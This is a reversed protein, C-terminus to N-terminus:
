RPGPPPQAPGPDPPAPSTAGPTPAPAPPPAETAGPPAAGSPPPAAGPEPPSPSGAAAAADPPAPAGPAPEPERPEAPRPAAPSGLARRARQLVDLSADIERLADSAEGARSSPSRATRELRERAERLGDVARGVLDRGEFFGAEARLADLERRQTASLGPLLEARELYGLARAIRERTEGAIDDRAWRSVLEFLAQDLEERGAFRQVEPIAVGAPPHLPAYAPALRPDSPMWGRTGVPAMLGKKVVLAGDVAELTYSRANRESLLVLALAALALIALWALLKKFGGGRSPRAWRQEPPAADAM